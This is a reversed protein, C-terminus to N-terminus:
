PIKLRGERWQELTVRVTFALTSQPTDGVETLVREGDGPSFELAHVGAWARVGMEAHELLPLLARQARLGLRRLEGYVAAVEDRAAFVRAHDNTETAFAYATAADTYRKILPPLDADPDDPKPSRPGDGSAPM